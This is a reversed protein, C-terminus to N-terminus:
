RVPSFSSTDKAFTQRAARVEMAMVWEGCRRMKKTAPMLMSPAGVASSISSLPGEKSQAWRHRSTYRQWNKVMSLPHRAM